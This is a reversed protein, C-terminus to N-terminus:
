NHPANFNRICRSDLQPTSQLRPFWAPQDPSWRRIAFGASYLPSFGPEPCTAEIERAMVVFDDAYRILKAKAWQAPGDGRQFLHDFWQWREWSWAPSAENEHVTMFLSTKLPRMVFNKTACIEWDATDGFQMRGPASIPPSGSQRVAQPNCIRSVAPHLGASCPSSNQGAGTKLGPKVDQEGLCCSRGHRM